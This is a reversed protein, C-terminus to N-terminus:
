SKKLLVASDMVITVPGDNQIYVQMDAGFRGNEVTGNTPQLRKRLEESFHMYLRDAEEPKAASFYDPRNGKRYDACLTFNSVVLASGGIDCVSRNMKGNEDEFIRLKSIKEALVISDEETDGESVGLLIMLGEGCSGVVENDIEVKSKKVRQLVAKM